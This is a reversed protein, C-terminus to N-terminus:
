CRIGGLLAELKPVKALYRQLVIHQLTLETKKFNCKDQLLQMFAVLKIRDATYPNWTDCLMAHLGESTREKTTAVWRSFLMFRHWALNAAEEPLAQQEEVVPIAEQRAMRSGKDSLILQLYKLKQCWAVGIRFPKMVFCYPRGARQQIEM